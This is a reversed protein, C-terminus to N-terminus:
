VLTIDRHRILLRVFYSEAKHLHTTRGLGLGVQVLSDGADLLRRSGPGLDHTQLLEEARGIEALTFVGLEEVEGLRNGTGGAFLQAAERLLGARYDDSREEFAAGGPDVVVRRDHEIGVAAQEPEVPFHM